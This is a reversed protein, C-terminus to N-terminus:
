RSIVFWIFSSLKAFPVFLLVVHFDFLCIDFLFSVVSLNLTIEVKTRWVCTIIIYNSVGLSTLM